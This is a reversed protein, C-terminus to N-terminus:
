TAVAQKLKESYDALEEISRIESRGLSRLERWFSDDVKIRIRSLEKALQFSLEKGERDFDTLIIAERWPKVKEVFDFFGVGTSKICLIKGEVGLRRLSLEDKRGEVIIPTGLKSRTVLEQILRDVRRYRREYASPL